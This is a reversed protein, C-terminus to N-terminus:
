AQRQIAADDRSVRQMAPCVCGRGNELGAGVIRKCELAVLRAKEVPRDGQKFLFAVGVSGFLGIALGMVSGFGSAGDDDLRFSHIKGADLRDCPKFADPHLGIAPLRTM